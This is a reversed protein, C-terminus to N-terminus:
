QQFREYAANYISLVEDLKLTQLQQVFRDYNGEVPEGGMFWKQSTEMVYTQISPFLENLRKDEDLTFSLKPLLYDEAFYNNDVYMKVGELAIKNTWQEEYAFDQQAGINLQAGTTKILYDVVSPQSLVEETFIPKGDVMTYTEGEIGFNLLRRGEETWWFDMYRLIAAPDKAKASIAWGANNGLPDRKTVEFTKGSISAPPAIPRLSFKPVTAPIQNNFNATSAFWDHTSGGTDNGFLVDRATNGRTFIEQDILGEKYWKATETLATKYEPENPGYVIKGDKLKFSLTADWLPFLSSFGTTANRSFFPIEDKKNNGNPDKERFAKLVEYYEQVTTPAQLGLKDLWDQRIFWGEQAEGDNVFPVVYIKGDAATIASKIAKNEELFAKFNPANEDLLDDLPTLASQAAINNLGPIQYAVIDPLEGSALLLNWAQADDGGSPAVNKLSVGTKKAAEKFIPLDGTVQFVSSYYYFSLERPEVNESAAPETSAAPTGAGEETQAPPSAEGNNKGGACGALLGTALISALLLLRKNRM